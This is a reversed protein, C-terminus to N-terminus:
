VGRYETLRLDIDDQGDRRQLIRIPTPVGSAVWLITEDGPKDTREVRLADYSMDGVAMTEPQPAVQYGHARARGADVLRYHLVAGPRADRMIALNLLLASM